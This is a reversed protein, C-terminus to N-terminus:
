GRHHVSKEGSRDRFWGRPSTEAVARITLRDAIVGTPSSMEARVAKLIAANVFSSLFERSEEDQIFVSAFLSATRTLGGGGSTDM